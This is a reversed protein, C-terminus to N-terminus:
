MMRYSTYQERMRVLRMTSDSTLISKLLELLKWLIVLKSMIAKSDRM